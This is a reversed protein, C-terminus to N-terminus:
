CLIKLSKLNFVIIQKIFSGKLSTFVLWKAFFLKRAQIFVKFGESCSKFICHSICKPIRIFISRFVGLFFNLVTTIYSKLLFSSESKIKSRVFHGLRVVHVKGKM